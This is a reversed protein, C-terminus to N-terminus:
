QGISVTLHRLTPIKFYGVDLGEPELIQRLDREAAPEVDFLTILSPGALDSSTPEFPRPGPVDPYAISQASGMTTTIRSADGVIRWIVGMTPSRDYTVKAAFFRPSAPLTGAPVFLPWSLRGTGTTFTPKGAWPLLTSNYNRNIVTTSAPFRDFVAQVLPPVGATPLHTVVLQTQMGAPSPFTFPGLNGSAGPILTVYPGDPAPLVATAWPAVNLTRAAANTPLGTVSGSADSLAKFAVFPVPVTPGTQASLVAVMDPVGGSPGAPSSAVVYADFMPCRLPVEVEITKSAERVVGTCSTFVQFTDTGTPPALEFKVTRTRQDIEAQSIIHAGPWLDLYTSAHLDMGPVGNRLVTRIVTASGGAPVEFTARGDAGTPMEALQGGAPDAFVVTAMAFPGGTRDRVEITVATSSAGDGNPADIPLENCMATSTVACANQGNCTLGEPCERNGSCALECPQIGPSYCGAAAVILAFFFTRVESTALGRSPRVM